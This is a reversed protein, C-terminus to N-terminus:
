CIAIKKHMASYNDNWEHHWCSYEARNSVIQCSVLLKALWKALDLTRIMHCVYKKPDMKFKLSTVVVLHKNKGLETLKEAGKHDKHINVVM